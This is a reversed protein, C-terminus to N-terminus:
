TSQNQKLKEILFEKLLSVRVSMAKILPWLLNIDLPPIQYDNLIPILKNESLANEAIFKPLMAIGHDLIVADLLAETNNM